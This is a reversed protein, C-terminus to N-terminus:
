RWSDVWFHQDFNANSLHLGYSLPAFYIFCAGAFLLLTAIWVVKKAMKDVLFGLGLIAFLLAPMYHYLFFGRNVFMFPLMNSTWGLLIFTETTLSDARLHNVLKPPFNVLLFIIAYTSSWWVFPNGLLFIHAKETPTYNAWFDLGRLMLPWTYWKSSYIHEEKVSHTAELMRGNLENFKAFFGMQEADKTALPNGALTAQFKPSMVWDDPGTRSALSFHTAFVLYYVIVPIIALPILRFFLAFSKLRVARTLEMLLIMGIFSLGTWKTAFAAGALILAVILYGWYKRRRYYLYFWLASFGFVLIFIDLLIFRSIVLLANDLAALFAVFCATYLSFGLEKAIGYIIFPLLTGALRPLLRLSLYSQDPLPVMNGPFTFAPNLDSLFASLSLILKALPPHIDFYFEHRLYNMAYRGFYVEDLVVTLPHTYFIFHVTISLLLLTVLFVSQPTRINIMTKTATM